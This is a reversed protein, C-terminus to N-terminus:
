PSRTAEGPQAAAAITEECVGMKRLRDITQEYDTLLTLWFEFLFDARDGGQEEEARIRERGNRLRPELEIMRKLLEEVTIGTGAL